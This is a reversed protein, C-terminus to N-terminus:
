RQPAHSIMIPRVDTFYLGDSLHKPLRIKRLAHTVYLRFGRIARFLSHPLFSSCPNCQSNTNAATFRTHLHFSHFFIFPLSFSNVTNFWSRASSSVAMLWYM